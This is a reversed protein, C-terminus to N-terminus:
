KSHWTDLAAKVIDTTADKPLKLTAAGPGSNEWELPGSLEGDGMVQIARVSQALEGFM